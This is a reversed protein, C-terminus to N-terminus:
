VHRDLHRNGRRGRVFSHLELGACRALEASLDSAAGAAILVPCRAVIVKQVIEFGARGSVTVIQDRLDTAGGLLRAGILKDVANHRGVDEFVELFTGDRSFLAAGHVGGTLEYLSQRTTMRRVLEGRLSHDWHIPEVEPLEVFVDELSPKGCVGCASTIRFDREVKLRAWRDLAEEKLHVELRNPGQNSFLPDAFEDASRVIGEGYLFGLALEHDDGPTRMTVAMPRGGVRIELPSEVALRDVGQCSGEESLREVPCEVTRTGDAPSQIKSDSDSM